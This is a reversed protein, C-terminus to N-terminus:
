RTKVGYRELEDQASNWTRVVEHYHRECEKSCFSSGEKMFYKYHNPEDEHPMPCAIWVGDPERQNKEYTEVIGSIDFTQIDAKDYYNYIAKGAFVLFLVFLVLGIVLKFIFKIIKGIFM